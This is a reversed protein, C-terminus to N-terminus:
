TPIEGEEKPVDRVEWITRGNSSSGGQRMGEKGGNEIEFESAIATATAKAAGAEGSDRSRTTM